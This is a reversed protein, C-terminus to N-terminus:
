LGLRSIATVHNCRPLSGHTDLTLYNSTPFLMLTVFVRQYAVLSLGIVLSHLELVLSHGTHRLM